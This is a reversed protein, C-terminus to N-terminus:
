SEAELEIKKGCYPCYQLTDMRNEPIRWYPDDIDHEKPCITRYDYHIWKCTGKHEDLNMSAYNETIEKLIKAQQYSTNFENVFAELNKQSIKCMSLRDYKARITRGDLLEYEKTEM